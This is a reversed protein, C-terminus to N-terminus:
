RPIRRRSCCREPVDPGQRVHSRHHHRGPLRHQPGYKPCRLARRTSVTPPYWSPSCKWHKRCMQRRQTLVETMWNTKRTYEGMFIGTGATVNTKEALTMNAVLVAAKRYSESWDATWGGHPAPYYPAAVYGDPVEVRKEVTNASAHLSNSLLLYSLVSFLRVAPMTASFCQAFPLFLPTRTRWAQNVPM